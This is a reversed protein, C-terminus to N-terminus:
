LIKNLRSERYLSDINKLKTMIEFGTVKTANLNRMTDTDYSDAQGWDESDETITVHGVAYESGDPFTIQYEFGYENYSQDGFSVDKEEIKFKKDSLSNLFEMNIWIYERIEKSSVFPVVKKVKGKNRKYRGM